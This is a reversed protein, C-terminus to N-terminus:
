CALGFRAALAESFLASCSLCLSLTVQEGPRADPMPLLAHAQADYHMALLPAGERECQLDYDWLGGSEVPGRLASCEADAWALVGAIEGCLEVLREAPVSAIVDWTCTGEGDESYDFELFRLTM